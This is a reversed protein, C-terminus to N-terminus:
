REVLAQQAWATLDTRVGAGFRFDRYSYMVSEVDEGPPVTPVVNLLHELGPYVHIDAHPAARAIADVSARVPMSTDDAGYQLGAFIQRAMAFKAM